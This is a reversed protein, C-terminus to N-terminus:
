HAEADALKARLVEATPPPDDPWVEMDTEGGILAVADPHMMRSVFARPQSM